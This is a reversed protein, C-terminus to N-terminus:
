CLRLTETLVASTLILVDKALLLNVIEADDHLSDTILPTSQGDLGYANLDVDDRALLQKVISAYGIMCACFLASVSFPGRVNVDINATALLLEVIAGHGRQAALILPPTEGINPNIGDVKLLLEVLDEYGEEVAVLLAIHYAEPIPDLYRGAALARQATGKVENSIAWLLSRSRPNTLDRRYLYKDVLDYIEINTRGLANLGADDLYDAIELIIEKPLNSLFM